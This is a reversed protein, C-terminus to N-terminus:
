VTPKWVAEVQLKGDEEARRYLSLRGRIRSKNYLDIMTGIIPPM